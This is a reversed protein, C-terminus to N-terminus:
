PTGGGFGATVFPVGNVSIVKSFSGEKLAPDREPHYAVVVKDGVKFVSKKVGGRIMNNPSSGELGITAPNGKDDITVVYLWTHPNTWQWDSVTGEITLEKTTDFRAFSHHALAVDSLCLLAAGLGIWRKLKM